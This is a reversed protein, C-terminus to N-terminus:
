IKFYPNNNKNNISAGGKALRQGLSGKDDGDGDNNENKNFNGMGAMKTKTADAKGKEYALKVIKNVYSSVKTTKEEDDSVINTLFESFETDNDKIDANQRAEATLGFAKNNNGSLISKALQEKLEQLERDKAAQALAAKEDDTMKAQLAKEKEELQKQLKATEADSMEKNVYKGSELVEKKGLGQFYTQVETATMGEHYNEGLLQKLEEEM